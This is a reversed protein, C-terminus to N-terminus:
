LRILGRSRRAASYAAVSAEFRAIVAPGIPTEDGEVGLLEHLAIPERRGVVRVRGLYRVILGNGARELTEGSVLATTGM